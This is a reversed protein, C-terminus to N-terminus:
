VRSIVKIVQAAIDFEWWKEASNWRGANAHHNNHLGDGMTLVQWLLSNYTSDNTDYNRYGFVSTGKLHSLTSIWGMCIVVYTVPVMYFYVAYMPNWVTLTIVYVMIIRFYYKHFFKYDPDTFLDKACVKSESVSEFHSFFNKLKHLLTGHPSTPDGVHDAHKHHLRHTHAWAIPSSATCLTGILLLVYKIAKNRPTFASHTCLRHFAICLGVGVFVWGLLVGSILLSLDFFVPVLGVTGLVCIAEILKVKGHHSLKYSM